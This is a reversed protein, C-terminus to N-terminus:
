RLIVCFISLHYSQPSMRHNPLLGNEDGTSLYIEVNERLSILMCDDEDMVMKRQKLKNRASDEKTAEINGETSQFNMIVSDVIGQHDCTLSEYFSFRIMTTPKLYSFVNESKFDMYTTLGDASETDLIRM